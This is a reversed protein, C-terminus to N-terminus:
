LPPSGDSVLIEVGSDTGGSILARNAYFPAILRAYGWLGLVGFAIIEHTDSGKGEWEAPPAQMM